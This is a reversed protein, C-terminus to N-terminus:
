ADILSKVFFSGLGEVFCIRQHTDSDFGAEEFGELMSIYCGFYGKGAVFWDRHNAVATSGRNCNRGHAQLREM